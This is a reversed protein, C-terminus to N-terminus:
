HSWDAWLLVASAPTSRMRRTRYESDISPNLEEVLMRRYLHAQGGEGVSRHRSGTHEDIRAHGANYIGALILPEVEGNRVLMGATENARM